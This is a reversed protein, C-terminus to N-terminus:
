GLSTDSESICDGFTKTLEERFRSAFSELSNKNDMIEKDTMRTPNM